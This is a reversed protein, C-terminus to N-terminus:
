SEEMSSDMAQSEAPKSEAPKDGGGCATLSVAMALALLISLAKKM